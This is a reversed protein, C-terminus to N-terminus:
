IWIQGACINSYKPILEPQLILRSSRVWDVVLVGFIIIPNMKRFDFVLFKGNHFIEYNELWLHLQFGSFYFITKKSFFNYLFFLGFHNTQLSTITNLQHQPFSNFYNFFNTQQQRFFLSLQFKNNNYFFKFKQFISFYLQLQM